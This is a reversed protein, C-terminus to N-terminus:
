FNIRLAFQIQRSTTTTDTIRGAAPNAAGTGTLASTNPLGFNTHNLINFAEARFNVSAAEPLKFSKELAMDISALGPGILTNRGLNGYTGAMPLSFSCPDYFRDATGLKQGAPIGTCGATIGETPNNSAGPKLDPREVLVSARDRSVSSGLRVTFPMGATFTTIGDLTWGNVFGGLLTSSARFPLAYSFNAVVAHRSDLDSLGWDRDIDEPDLVGNPSRVSDGSSTNSANDMAKSFTYFIQGQFGNSLRRRVTATLSNYISDGNLEYYRIGDWAPNRRAAGAPYFKRGDELITPIPTDMERQTSLHNSKNGAYAVQVVTNRDIEHQISLSYQHTVPTKNFPAVPELRILAGATLTQYGDPFPPNTASLTYWFPAMGAQLAYAWPLIQNHYIGGGARLVTKESKSVQWALGIRPEFNKKGIRFFRDSIVTSTAAPSPLLASKGNVERPDTATEWRLGLNLTLRTNVTYDDQAYIGYVSQRLGWYPLVGVPAGVQLNGPRGALFDVFTPFTYSGKTSSGKANNDEVRQINVGTKFSHKGTVYSFDNAWEFVNYTWRNLGNGNNAGLQTIPRPTGTPNIAGVQISGFPQGPVIALQPGPDPITPQDFISNSRNFAFRFNNLSKVGM